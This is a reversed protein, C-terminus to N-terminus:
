LYEKIHIGFARFYDDPKDIDSLVSEDEIDTKIIRHKYKEDEYKKFVARAGTDASLQELKSFIKRSAIVPNGRCGKYFPIVFEIDTNKSTEFVNLLRNIIADTIFPQDALLFMASDCEPSIASLGKIISSSQGKKYDNNIILKIDDPFSIRKMITDADHGLVVINEYLMSKQAQKIVQGLLTTGHFPLLQKTLGMRRSEGAALIIGANKKSLKMIIKEVKLTFRSKVVKQFNDFRTL